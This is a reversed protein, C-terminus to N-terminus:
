APDPPPVRRIAEPDAKLAEVLTQMAWSAARAAQEGTLDAHEELWYWARSVTFLHVAGGVMALEEDTLTPAVARLRERWREVVAKRRPKFTRSLGLSHATLTTWRRYRDRGQIFQSPNDLTVGLDDYWYSGYGCCQDYFYSYDSYDQEVEDHRNLYSGAYVVDWDFIKGEITMAAQYFQDRSTEPYFHSVELDGVNPDYAFIGDAKTVQGM